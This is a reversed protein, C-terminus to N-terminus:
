SNEDLNIVLERAYKIAEDFDIETNEDLLNKNENIIEFCFWNNNLWFVM